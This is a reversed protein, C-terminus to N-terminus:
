VVAERSCGNELHNSISAPLKSPSQSIIRTLSSNGLGTQFLSSQEQGKLPCIGARGESESACTGGAWTKSETVKCVRKWHLPLQRCKHCSLQFMNNQASCKLTCVCSHWPINKKWSTSLLLKHWHVLYESWFLDSRNQMSLVGLKQCSWYSNNWSLFLAM